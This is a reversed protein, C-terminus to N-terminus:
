KVLTHKNYVMMLEALATQAALATETVCSDGEAMDASGGGAHMGEGEAMATAQARTLTGEVVIESGLLETPFKPMEEGAQVYLRIDPNDGTIFLKKGSHMCVHVVKGEVSIEKGIYNEPNEILSAFEVKVAGTQEETKLAAEKKGTNGCSALLAAAFLLTLTKKVM